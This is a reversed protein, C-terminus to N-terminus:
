LSRATTVLRTFIAMPPLRALGLRTSTSGMAQSSHGTVSILTPGEQRPQIAWRQTSAQGLPAMWISFWRETMSWELHTSHPM